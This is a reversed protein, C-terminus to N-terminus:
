WTRCTAGGWSRLVRAVMGPVATGKMFHSMLAIAVANLGTMAAYALLLPLGVRLLLGPPDVPDAGQVRVGGLALYVLGGAAGLFGTMAVNFFRTRWRTRRPDLAYSVGGVLVAGSPGALPLAAALVVMAVSVGLHPGLDRERLAVGAVGLVALALVVVPDPPGAGGARTWGWWCVATALVGLLLIYLDM